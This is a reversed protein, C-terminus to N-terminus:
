GGCEEGGRVEVVDLLEVFCPKGLVESVSPRTRGGDGSVFERIYLGHEAEIVLDFTHTGTVRWSLRKVRRRRVRDSRRHAIREPTRQSIIVGELEKLEELEEETIGGRCRVHAVYVKEFKAEKLERAERKSSPRLCLVEVKGGGHNNIERVAEELDIYRKRPEIVEIVFPRGNGLMRADIDERGAAHLRTGKGMTLGLLVDAIYYEVTERWQRGTYDCRECGSGKCYRCPWKSQPMPAHKRYRGYLYLPKPHYEFRETETVFVIEMDPNVPDHLKGYREAIRKGLERNINKKLTEVGEVVGLREWLLEEMKVLEKDLRTGLVFTRFEYLNPDFREVIEDLRQFIGRCFACGETERLGLIERVKRGRERNNEGEVEPFMRGICEDCIPYEKALRQLAM